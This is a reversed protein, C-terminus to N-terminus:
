LILCLLTLLNNLFYLQLIICNYSLSLQKIYLTGKIKNTRTLYLIFISGIIMTKTTFNAFYITTLEKRNQSSRHHTHRKKQTQTGIPVRYIFLRVLAVTKM